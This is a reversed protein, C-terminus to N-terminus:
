HVSLGQAIALDLQRKNEELTRGPIYLSTSGLVLNSAGARILDPISELSVRGDVQIGIDRETARIRRALDKIKVESYTVQKESKDGAFGPNILMLLVNDLQPLLYELCSLSTAPNLAVSAKVGRKKILNILRDAHLSTEYHFSIQQVGIDLVQQIFWENNNAMIHVDFPLDTKERLRKVTDIGLPMSPSFAGDILDIHLADVGAQNLAKVSSELNLLDACMISPSTIIKREM